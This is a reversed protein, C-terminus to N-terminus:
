HYPGRAEVVAAGFTSVLGVLFVSGVLELQATSAWIGDPVSLVVGLGVAVVGVIATQFWRGGFIVCCSGVILLGILIIRHGLLADAISVALCLILALVCAQNANIGWTSTAQDSPSLHQGFLRKFVTSRSSASSDLRPRERLVRVAEAAAVAAIGLAAVRDAWWWGLFENALLGFVAIVGLVAGIVSLTGDGKLAHSKLADGTRHKAIGLPLLAVASVGATIMALLSQEPASGVSLEDIAAVALTIAVIVLAVAVILSARAEARQGRDPDGREVRFRWVLGISGGVDALVNLGLGLVGLSGALLGSTIAM